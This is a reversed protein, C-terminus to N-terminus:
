SSISELVKGRTEIGLALVLGAAIVFSGAGLAFVGFQGIDKVIYGIVIPGIIAGVRGAASAVGAGTSRARTPYLEPTYAYLCSWMGFMFFQMSFGLLFLSTEGVANGYLYATVASMILFLATTPKRGIQELSWAATFFGPIGGITILTVFGVSKVISFGHSSLLVAIWSSLGFYGLLAFFWLGFAMLTRPLYAKSFLTRWPNEYHPPVIFAPPPPLPTSVRRAVEREMDTM